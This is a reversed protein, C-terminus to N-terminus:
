SLDMDEYDNFLRAGSLIYGISGLSTQQVEDAYTPHLTLTVDVPSEQLYETTTVVNFDELSDDSFPQSGVNKPILFKEPLDHDPLGNSQYSFTDEGLTITVNDGWQTAQIGATTDFSEGGTSSSQAPPTATGQDETQAPQAGETPPMGNAPIGLADMLDSESVGLAEAAAAFDPPGQQPDGLAAQLAEESVGLTQAASALDIQPPQGGPQGPQGGPQGQPQGGQGQPAGLVTVNSDDCVANSPNGAPTETVDGGRVLRVYNYYREGGEGLPGNEVKTDFRVAGAGHSDNGEGDVARGFAVYWAYYYDGCANFRASTSTWFYPYDADGAENTISSIHFLPDIAPGEDAPDTAGP